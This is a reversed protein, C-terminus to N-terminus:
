PTAGQTAQKTPNLSSSNLLLFIALTQYKEPKMEKLHNSIADHWREQALLLSTYESVSLEATLEQCKNHLAQAAEKATSGKKIQEDICQRISEITQPDCTKIAEAAESSRTSYLDIWNPTTMTRDRPNIILDEYHRM